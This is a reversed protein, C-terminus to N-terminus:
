FFFLFFLHYIDHLSLYRAHPEHNKREKEPM